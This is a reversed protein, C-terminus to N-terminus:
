PCNNTGTMTWCVAANFLLLGQSTMDNSSVEINNYLFFGTRRAPATSPTGPMTAGFPYGFIVHRNAQNPATAIVVATGGSRGYVLTENSRYVTYDTNASLGAALPHNSTIIRLQTQNGQNGHANTSMGMIELLDDEMVMVPVGVNRFKTNVESSSVSASIVVLSKGTADSTQSATDDVVLVRSLNGPAAPNLAAIQNRMSADAGLNGADGVVLL